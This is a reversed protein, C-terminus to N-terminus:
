KGSVLPLRSAGSKPFTLAWSSRLPTRLVPTTPPAPPPPVVGQRLCPLAAGERRPGGHQVVHGDAGGVGDGGHIEGLGACTAWGGGSGPAALERVSVCM